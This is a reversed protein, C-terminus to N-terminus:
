GTRPRARGSEARPRSSDDAVAPWSPETLACEVFARHSADNEGSPSGAYSAAQRSPQPRWRSTVASHRSLCLCTFQPDFQYRSPHRERRELEMGEEIAADLFETEAPGRRNLRFRNRRCQGAAVDERGRHGPAALGRREQQRDEVREDPPRAPRRAREHQRRRALQRRLNQRVQVIQRHMRRNRRRGHEAADAHPRLFVREAAADVDDDRRRPPQQIM